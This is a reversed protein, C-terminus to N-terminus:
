QCFIGLHVPLDKCIVLKNLYVFPASGGGEGSEATNM